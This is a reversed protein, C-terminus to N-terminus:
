PQWGYWDYCVARGGFGEKQFILPENLVHGCDETSRGFDFYTFSGLEHHIIFDYLADIVGLRKGEATASSYQAHAVQPTLYIVIGGLMLGNKTATYLRINAPFRSHLLLIEQLNHVPHVGYKGSLNADLVQWFAAFDASPGVTVGSGLSKRVGRLRLRQWPLPNRLMITSSVDRAILKAGCERFLAYLDEEAPQRHYIWPVAKYVVREVGANRLFRNLQAFLEVALAATMSNGTILGGYTLGGHSTLVSGKIEAPFLACLRGGSYFMLSFDTFRAAHYDMYRRDFLFTGNKSQAVFANWEAARDATYRTIELM